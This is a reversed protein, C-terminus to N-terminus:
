QTTVLLKGQLGTAEADDGQLVVSGKSADMKSLERELRDAEEESSTSATM